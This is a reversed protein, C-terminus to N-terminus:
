IKPTLVSECLELPNVWHTPTDVKNIVQLREIRNLETKVRDGLAQPVSRPHHAAPIDDFDVHITCEGPFLGLGEFVDKFQTLVTERDLVSGAFSNVTVSNVFKVFGMTMCSSLGFIPHPMGVTLTLLM